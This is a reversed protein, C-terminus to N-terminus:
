RWAPWTALRPDGGFPPPQLPMRAADAYSFVQPPFPYPYPPALPPLPPLHYPEPYPPIFQRAPHPPFPPPFPPPPYPPYIPLERGHGTQLRGQHAATTLPQVAQTQTPTNNATKPAAPKAKKNPKPGKARKGKPKDKPRPQDEANEKMKQIKNKKQLKRKDRAEDLNTDTKEMMCAHEQSTDQDLQIDKTLTELDTKIHELDQYLDSQLNQYHEALLEVLAQEAQRLINNFRDKTQPTAKFALCSKNINLGKPIADQVICEELFELHSDVKDISSVVRKYKRRAQLLTDQQKLIVSGRPSVGQRSGDPVLAPDLALAEGEGSSPGRPDPAAAVDSPTTPPNWTDSTGAEPTGSNAYHPRSKRPRLVRACM